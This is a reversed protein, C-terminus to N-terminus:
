GSGGASASEPTSATHTLLLDRAESLEALREAAGDRAAGHDPHALRVLRRFRAQVDQRDVAMGAGLGLVEMAWRREAPVGAWREDGRDGNRSHPAFPQLGPVGEYLRRVVLADPLVPRAVAAEVARLATRRASTPLAAAALVAGLLQPVGAGHRDLELVVAPAAGLGAESVIRHRSRDLGHTDTQLRYRLAIRPVALGGAADHVLRPLLEAQEDDLEGLHEAVVAGLLVAGWGPGSLPLYADGLAVRRTPM